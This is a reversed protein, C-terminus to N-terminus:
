RGKGERRRMVGVVKLGRQKGRGNKEEQIEGRVEVKEAGIRKVRNSRSDDWEEM